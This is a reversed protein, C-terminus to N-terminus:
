VMEVHSCSISLEKDLSLKFHPKIVLCSLRHIPACSMALHLYHGSSSVCLWGNKGRYGETKM